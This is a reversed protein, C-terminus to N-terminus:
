VSTCGPLIAPGFSPEGPLTPGHAWGEADKTGARPGGELSLGPSDSLLDQFDTAQRRALTEGSLVSATAPTDLIPRVDRSAAELTLPPLEVPAETDQAALPLGALMCFTFSPYRLM